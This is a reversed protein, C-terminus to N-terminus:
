VGARRAPQQSNWTGTYMYETSCRRATASARRCNTEKQFIVVFQQDAGAVERWDRATSRRELAVDLAVDAAADDVEVLGAIGARM